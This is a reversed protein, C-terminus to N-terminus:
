SNEGTQALGLYYVGLYRGELKGKMVWRKLLREASVFGRMVM